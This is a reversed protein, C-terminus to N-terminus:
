VSTNFEYDNYIKAPLTLNKLSEDITDVNFFNHSIHRM